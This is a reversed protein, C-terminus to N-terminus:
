ATEQAAKLRKACGGLIAVFVISIAAAIAAMVFTPIIAGQLFAGSIFNFIVSSLGLGTMIFGYNTAAHKPGLLDTCFAPNVSAPGGFGFATAVVVVIFAGGGIFTLLIACVLTLISLFMLTPTRGLKDSLPSMILRGSASAAGTLSVALVAMSESLGREMGLGKILPVVLNWTGNIFFIHLFIAWFPLTKMAERLTYNRTVSVTKGVSSAPPLSNLYEQGPLSVLLCSILGVTAFTGALIFFVPQFNVTGNNTFAAMLLKSVPSFIVTSFGFASVALGTALGRRHPFWKQLCSLCAAYAFGTGLGGILCYTLYILAITGESLLGTSGIGIAFTIVGVTATLKPGRNDNVYGGLLNGCVFSLMMFSAVMTAGSDTWNFSKVIDSRFISWMYIIGVCVQILICGIVSPLASQKRKM